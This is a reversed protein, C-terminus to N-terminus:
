LSQGPDTGGEVYSVSGRVELWGRRAHVNRRDMCTRRERLAESQRHLGFQSRSRNIDDWIRKSLQRNEVSM